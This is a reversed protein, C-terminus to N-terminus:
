TKPAKRKQRSRMLAISQEDFRPGSKAIDPNLVFDAANLLDAVERDHFRGTMLKVEKSVNLTFLSLTGRPVRRYFHKMFTSVCKVREDLWYSYGELFLHLMSLERKAFDWHKGDPIMTTTTRAPDFFPSGSLGKVEEAMGRLRGPFEALAKWTKGTDQAWRREYNEKPTGDMRKRHKVALCAYLLLAEENESAAEQSDRALGHIEELAQRFGSDAMLQAVGADSLLQQPVGDVPSSASQLGASPSNASTVIARRVTERKSKKRRNM